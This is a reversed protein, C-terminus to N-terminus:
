SVVRTLTLRYGLLRAYGVAMDLPMPYHGREWGSLTDRGIGLREAMRWQQWGEAQRASRLAAVVPDVNAPIPVKYAGYPGDARTM